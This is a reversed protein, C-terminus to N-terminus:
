LASPLTKKRPFLSEQGWCLSLTWAKAAVLFLAFKSSGALFRESNSYRKLDDDSIKKTWKNFEDFWGLIFHFQLVVIYSLKM